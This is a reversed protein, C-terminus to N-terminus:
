KSYKFCKGQFKPSKEGTKALLVSEKLAEKLGMRREYKSFCAVIASYNTTNGSIELQLILPAFREDLARIAGFLISIKLAKSPKETPNITGIEYQLTSL